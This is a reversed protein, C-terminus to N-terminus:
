LPFRFGILVLFDSTLATASEKNKNINKFGMNYRADFVFDSKFKLNKLPLKLGLGITGGMDYETIYNKISLDFPIIQGTELVKIDGKGNAEYLYGIFAGARIYFLQKIGIYRKYSASFVIYDMVVTEGISEYINDDVMFQYDEYKTGKQEFLFTLDIYNKWSLSIPLEFTGGASFGLIRKTKRSEGRLNSYTAGGQLIFHSNGYGWSIKETESAPEYFIDESGNEYVVRNIDVVGIKYIPGDPNDFKKYKIEQTSVELIRALITKGSNTYITDQSIGVNALLVFLSIVLIQKKM